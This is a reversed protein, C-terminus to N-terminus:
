DGRPLVQWYRATTPGAPPDLNYKQAQATRVMLIQEPETLPVLQAEFIDEGMRIRVKPDDDVWDDWRKEEPRGAAIFLDGDLEVCWITISHPILYPTNVELAVERYARSFAWDAPYPQREGSLWQGPTQDSPQCATLGLVALGLLMSRSVNLRM